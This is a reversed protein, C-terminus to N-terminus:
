HHSHKPEEPFFRLLEKVTNATVSMGNTLIYRIFNDLNEESFLFDLPSIFTYQPPVPSTNFIYFVGVKKQYEGILDRAINIGRPNPSNGDLFCAQVLYLDYEEFLNSPSVRALQELSSLTIDFDYRCCYRIFREISASMENNMGIILLKM